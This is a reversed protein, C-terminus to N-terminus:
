EETRLDDAILEAARWALAMIPGNTNASVMAPMVSGDVVRLREVGKVRLHSDVVADNFNGMRCTGCAHLGATGFRRYGAIIEEDTQLTRSPEREETLLPAIAPQQMWRRIFPHMAVTVRQDYPDTLYSARISAAAMPDPSSIRVSGESRSRLPYGFLQLSHEPDIAFGGKGDPVAVLPSLLIEVDPTTSDMLVRAFAGAVGYAVAMPGKRTLWYRLVNGVLRVGEFERNHSLPERLGYEIMLLRHELMHGGVGSSDALVEIGLGQLLAGPGIGSRQLIQPSMLGGACLIVEGDTGFMQETGNVLAQVGVARHNDFLVRQAMVGTVVEFNRRGRAAKLFTTATSQRRGKWITRPAYGVGPQGPTNLDDTRPVGM